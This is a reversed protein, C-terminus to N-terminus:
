ATDVAVPFDEEEQQAQGGDTVEIVNQSTQSGAHVSTQSDEGFRVQAADVIEDVGSGMIGYGAFEVADNPMEGVDSFIEDAFVSAGLGAAVQGAGVTMSTEKFTEGESSLQGEIFNGTAGSAVVGVGVYLGRKLREILVERDVM